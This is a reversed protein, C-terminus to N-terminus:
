TRSRRRTMMAVLVGSTVAGILYVLWMVLWLLSYWGKAQEPHGTVWFPIFVVALLCTAAAAIGHGFPRGTNRMALARSADEAAAERLQARVSTRPMKEALSLLRAARRVLRAEATLGSAGWLAGAAAILAVLVPVVFSTM